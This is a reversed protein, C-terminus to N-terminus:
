YYLLCIRKGTLVQSFVFFFFCGGPREHMEEVRSVHGKKQNRPDSPNQLWNQYAAELLVSVKPSFGLWHSGEEFEWYAEVACFGSAM